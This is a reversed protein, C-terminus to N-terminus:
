RVFEGILFERKTEQYFLEEQTSDCFVAVFLFGQLRTIRKAQREAQARQRFVAYGSSFQAGRYHCFDVRFSM